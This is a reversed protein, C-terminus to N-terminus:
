NNPQTNKQVKNESIIKQFQVRDRRIESQYEQESIPKFKEDFDVKKRVYMIEDFPYVHRYVVMMSKDDANIAATIYDYIGGYKHKYHLSSMKEQYFIDTYM